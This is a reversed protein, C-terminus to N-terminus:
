QKYNVTKGSSCGCSWGCGVAGLRQRRDFGPVAGSTGLAGEQKATQVLLLLLLNNVFQVLHRGHLTRNTRLALDSHQLARGTKAPSNQFDIQLRHSVTENRIGVRRQIAGLGQSSIPNLHARSLAKSCLGGTIHFM